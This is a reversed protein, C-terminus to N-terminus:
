NDELPPYYPEAPRLGHTRQGCGPCYDGPHLNLDFRHGCSECDYGELKRGNNIARRKVYTGGNPTRHCVCGHLQGNAKVWSWGIGPACSEPEVKWGLKLLAEWHTPLTTLGQADAADLANRLVRIKLEM